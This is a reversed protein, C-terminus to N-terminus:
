DFCAAAIMAVSDQRERATSVIDAKACVALLPNVCEGSRVFKVPQIQKM